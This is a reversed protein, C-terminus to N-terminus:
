GAPAAEFVYVTFGDRVTPLLWRVVLPPIAVAKLEAAKLVISTRSTVSFGASRFRAAPRREVGVFSAGLKAQLEASHRTLFREDMLDCILEVRPFAQRLTALLRDVESPPLYMLVGELVVTVPSSGRHAVLAQRLAETSFDVAVRELPNPCQSAPLAEQKRALLPAADLELWRGGPLRFPRSDFGAGLLVVLRSPDASLRARLLDDVIRHRAINSGNPRAFHRLGDFAAWGAEDLFLRAYEDGCIPQPRAADDARVGACYYATQSVVHM